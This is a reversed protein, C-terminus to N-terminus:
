LDKSLNIFKMPRSYSVFDSLSGTALLFSLLAATQAFRITWEHRPAGNNLYLKYNILSTEFELKIDKTSLHLRKLEDIAKNLNEKYARLKELLEGRSLSSFDPFYPKLATPLETLTSNHTYYSICSSFEVQLRILCDKISIFDNPLHLNWYSNMKEIRSKLNNEALIHRRLFKLATQYLDYAPTLKKPANQTEIKNHLFLEQFAKIKENDLTKRIIEANDFQEQRLLKNETNSQVPNQSSQISGLIENFNIFNFIPTDKEFKNSHTYELEPFKTFEAIFKNLDLSQQLHTNVVSVNKNPSIPPPETQISNKSEITTKFKNGPHLLPDNFNSEPFTETKFEISNSSSDSAKENFPKPQIFQTHHATSNKPNEIQQVSPNQGVPYSIEQNIQYINTTSSSPSISQFSSNKSMTKSFKLHHFSPTADHCVDSACLEMKKVTFHSSGSASLLSLLQSARVRLVLASYCAPRTLETRIYAFQPAM